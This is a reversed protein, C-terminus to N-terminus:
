NAPQKLKNLEESFNSIRINLYDEFLKSTEFNFREEDCYLKSTEIGNQYLEPIINDELWNQVFDAILDAFNITNEVWIGNNDNMWSPKLSPIKGLVPVGLKMSEIPFTGFGSESDIWVSLMCEKLTNSFQEISMGRMDRFSIWRYQPFRSYFTKIINMGDRQEKTYIAILPKPPFESKQFVKSIKFNIVDISVNRMVKSIQQKLTESTTICKNFGLQVWTEGPQLTEFIYDYAQCLVIKACPLQSLQSMIYGFIEPVVITDEPSIPLNNGEVCMHPIEMYETSLCEAVGFYDPKEHLIISNYGLDKLTKAIEYVFYISGKTNGKTDQVFFYIKSNKNKLNEISRELNIILQEM